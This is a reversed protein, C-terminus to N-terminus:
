QHEVAIAHQAAIISAGRESCCYSQKTMKSVKLELLFRIDERLVM